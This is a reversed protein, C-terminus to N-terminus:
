AGAHDDRAGSGGAAAPTTHAQRPSAHARVEQVTVKYSAATNFASEVYVVGSGTVLEPLPAGGVLVQLEFQGQRM